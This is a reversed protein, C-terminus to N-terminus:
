QPAVDLIANLKSALREETTKFAMPIGTEEFSCDERIMKAVGKTSLLILPMGHGNFGACVFQGPKSPVAGIHPMLDSTYGMIGSWISDLEANSNEWGRYNKQMLGDRFHPVAPEILTTDDTNNYWEHQKDWFYQRAGGM